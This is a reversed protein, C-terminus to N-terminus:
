AQMVKQEHGAGRGESTSLQTAFKADRTPCQAGALLAGGRAAQIALKCLMRQKTPGAM